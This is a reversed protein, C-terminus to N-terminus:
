SFSQEMLIQTLRLTFIHIATHSIFSPMAILIRFARSRRVSLSFLYSCIWVMRDYSSFAGM